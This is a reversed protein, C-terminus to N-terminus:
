KMETTLIRSSIRFPRTFEIEIISLTQTYKKRKMRKKKRTDIVECRTYGREEGIELYHLM